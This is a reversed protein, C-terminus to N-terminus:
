GRETQVARDSRAVPDRDPQDTRTIAPHKSELVTKKQAVLGLDRRNTIDGLPADFGPHVAHVFKVARLSTHTMRIEPVHERVFANIRDIDRRRVVRRATFSM